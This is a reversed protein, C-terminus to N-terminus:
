TGFELLFRRYFELALDVQELEVYESPTHAQKISGPGFIISPIGARSLKTADCGFPVGIANEDLGLHRAIRTAVQVVPATISTEMAEDSLTPPAMEVRMQPDLRRLRELVDGCQSLAREATEGPLLRRDINIECYDPVFNVQTGGKIEGISGTGSGLLPHPKQELATFHEELALIVKAMSTIANQGQKPRSSHAPTGHTM